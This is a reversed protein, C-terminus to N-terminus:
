GHALWYYDRVYEAVMRHTSFRCCITKMSKAMMKVWQQPVGRRDRKYFAPVIQRELTSYIAEADAADQKTRSSYERGDGINWGNRGDSAEPWWGDLISFNLGGVLPPKMGSTGSAEMPRVPNNLWVDCGQTLLRGISTDYNQLLLIKGKFPGKRTQEHVFKVYENGAADLPHAKGAFIIQVPRDANCLIRELRKPDKFILPARKYLAFRRAFGITLANEDLSSYLEDIEEFSLGHYLMQDRMHSRLTSILKRRMMQRLAWFEDAPIKDARAWWDDDPGAGVWRPKLHKDYFPRAAEDLWSEPHVGNTVHGIPVDDPDMASYTKAWMKRSTHGHLEAVGNCGDALLLALVTMCFPEKTDEPDERGLSLFAERDLGLDRMYPRLYKLTLGVDFRDNGEPVPTHTTFVSAARVEELAEEINRGKKVLRRLRELGCFAAHGENLHFVTPKVGMAELAMLGGVGLLLEQRIRYERDGGYLHHTLKRDEPKNEPIDCDLLYIPIRGVMLVWIKAKVRSSGIMMTISKGTDRVPLMSFDSPPYLVRVDGSPTIEQRYYGHRWLVGVATLPVGLDSASKMHDAALVGLGGAYLPLCEHIAFEMCFYAARMKKQSADAERDYWTQANLYRALEAEVHALNKQFVPDHELTQRRTASLAAMTAIPNQTTARWLAPDMSELLRRADPNWTWWLNRAITDVRDWVNGRRPATRAAPRRRRAASAKAM